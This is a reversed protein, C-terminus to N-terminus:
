RSRAKLNLSIVVRGIFSSFAGTLAALFLGGIGEGFWGHLFPNLNPLWLCSLPFAIAVDPAMPGGRGITRLPYSTSKQSALSSTNFSIPHVCEESVYFSRVMQGLISKRRSIWLQAGGKVPTSESALRLPFFGRRSDDGPPFELRGVPEKRKGRGGVGPLGLLVSRSQYSYSM